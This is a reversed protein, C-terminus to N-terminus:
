HLHGLVAVLKSWEAFGEAVAVSREAIVAERNDLYAILLKTQLERGLTRMESSWAALENIGWDFGERMVWEAEAEEARKRRKAESTFYTAVNKSLDTRWDFLDNQMQNWCGFTDIFQSWLPLLDERSHKYCVGAVPIKTAGTKKASVQVFDDRGIQQCDGDRCTVEATELWVSAFTSWFPHGFEFYRQYPSQFNSHFYALVPLLELESTVDGDMLNDILRIYHFGNLTSYVVNSQFELDHDPVITEELLWPLLFMPYAEPHSFYDSLAVEGYCHRMWSETKEAMFPATRRLDSKIRRDASGIIRILKPDYQFLPM